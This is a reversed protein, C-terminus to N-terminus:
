HKIMIPKQVRVLRDIQNKNNCLFKTNWGKTTMLAASYLGVGTKKDELSYVPLSPASFKRGM